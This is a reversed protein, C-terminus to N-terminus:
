KNMLERQQKAQMVLCPLRFLDMAFGIGFLGLTCLYLYGRKTNGLYFHHLGFLGGPLIYLYAECINLTEEPHKVLYFQRFLDAFWGVGFLGFTALYMFGHFNRGLLFHQIGTFGLAWVTFVDWEKSDRSELLSKMRCLDVVVGIGLCGGTLFYLVGWKYRGLLFHHTGFWGLLLTLIYLDSLLCPPMESSDSRLSLNSFPVTPHDIIKGEAVGESVDGEVIVALSIDEEFGREVSGVGHEICTLRKGLSASPVSYGDNIEVVSM